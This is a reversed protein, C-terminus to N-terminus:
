CGERMLSTQSLQHVIASRRRVDLKELISHVHNKVTAAGIRLDIAIEKNSLGQGILVAIEKERRTLVASKPSGMALRALRECMLASVRPSCVLEGNRARFIATVLEDVSSESGVFATFGSQACDVLHDAGGSIGFGVIRIGPAVDRVNRALQLCNVLAGDLLLADPPNRAIAPLADTSTVLGLIKVRGNRFLSAALGERYLLVDSVITVTPMNASATQRAECLDLVPNLQDNSM